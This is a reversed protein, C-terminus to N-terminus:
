EEEVKSNEMKILNDSIKNLVARAFALEEKTMGEFVSGIFAAGKPHTKKWFEASGESTKLRTIRADKKDKELKLLGKQELKLALQKVNQHSSGMERAVEKIPPPVSFLNDIVISLMWQKSTVEFEKLERELLTNMRNAAILLSGFIFQEDEMKEMKDLSEDGGETECM